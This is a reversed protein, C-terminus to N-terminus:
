AGQRSEDQWGGPPVYNLHPGYRATLEDLSLPAKAV